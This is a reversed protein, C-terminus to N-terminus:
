GPDYQSLAPKGRRRNIGWIHSPGANKNMGKIGEKKKKKMPDVKKADAQSKTQLAGGPLRITEPPPRCPAGKKKKTSWGGRV